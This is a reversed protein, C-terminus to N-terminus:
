ELVSIAPAVSVDDGGVTRRQEPLAASQGGLRQVNNPMERQEADRRAPYESIVGDRGRIPKSM